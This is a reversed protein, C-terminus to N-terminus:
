DSNFGLRFIVRPTNENLKSVTLIMSSDYAYPCQYVYQIDGSTRVNTPVGIDIESGDDNFARMIVNPDDILIKFKGSPDSDYSCSLAFGDKRFTLPIQLGALLSKKYMTLWEHKPEAEIGRKTVVQRQIILEM